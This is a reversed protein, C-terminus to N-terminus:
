SINHQRSCSDADRVQPRVRTLFHFFFLFILWCSNFQPRGGQLCCGLVILKRDATFHATLKQQRSHSNFGQDTVVCNLGRLQANMKIPVASILVDRLWSYISVCEQSPKWLSDLNQFRGKHNWHWDSFLFYFLSGSSTFRQPQRLEEVTLAFSLSKFFRLFGSSGLAYLPPPKLVAQCMSTLFFLIDDHSFMKTLKQNTWLGLPGFAWILGFM